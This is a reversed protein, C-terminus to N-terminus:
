IKVVRTTCIHDHLARKEGDFAAIIYGINCILGSLIEAFFRGAALSFSVRSGDAKVVRLKCVMKGPTAGFKGIFFINYGAALAYYLGQFGLQLGISDFPSMGAGRAGLVPLVFILFLILVPAGVILGDLIKALARIWFGGYGRAAAAAGVAQTRDLFGRKCTTCVWRDGYRVVLEPPFTQRCETCVVDAGPATSSTATPGNPAAAEAERVPALSAQVVSYPQWQAMGEHWVLTTATIKGSAVLANFDAETLPGM